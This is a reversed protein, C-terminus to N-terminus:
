PQHTFASPQFQPFSLIRCFCVFPVSAPRPRGVIFPRPCPLADTIRYCSAWYGINVPSAPVLPTHRAPLVFVNVSPLLSFSPAVVSKVSSVSPLPRRPILPVCLFRECFSAFLVFPGAVSSRPGPAHPSPRASKPSAPSVPAPHSWPQALHSKM